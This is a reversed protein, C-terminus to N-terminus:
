VPRQARRARSAAECPLFFFLYFPTVPIPRSSPCPSEAAEGRRPTKKTKGGKNM